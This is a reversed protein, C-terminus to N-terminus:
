KRDKEYQRIFEMDDRVRAATEFDEEDIAKHLMANLIVAVLNINQSLDLLEDMNSVKIVGEGETIFPMELTSSFNISFYDHCSACGKHVDEAYEVPSMDCQPCRGMFIDMLQDAGTAVTEEPSDLKQLEILADMYCNKCLTLERVQSSSVYRYKRLGETSNCKCCRDDM